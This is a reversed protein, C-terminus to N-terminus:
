YFNVINIWEIQIVPHDRMDMPLLVEVVQPEDDEAVPVIEAVIEIENEAAPAIEEIIQIDEDENNQQMDHNNQIRSTVNENANESNSM